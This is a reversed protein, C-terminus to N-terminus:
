DSNEKSFVKSVAKSQVWLPGVEEVRNKCILMLAIFLSATLSFFLMATLIIGVLPTTSFIAPNVLETVWWALL